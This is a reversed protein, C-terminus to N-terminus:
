VSLRQCEKGIMGFAIRLRPFRVTRRMYKESDGAPGPEGSVDPHHAKALRRYARRIDESTADAAVGLVDYYSHDSDPM